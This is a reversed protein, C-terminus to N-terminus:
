FAEWCFIPKRVFFRELQGRNKHLTLDRRLLATDLSIYGLIIQTFVRVDATLDPQEDTRSVGEDTVLYRGSNEPLADDLVEVVVRLGEPKKALALAKEVHVVRAMLGNNRVTRVSAPNPVLAPLYADEPLCLAVSQYDASIRSLFGLLMRLGEAGDYAVDQVALMRDEAATYLLYAKAGEDDGLLYAFRHQNLAQEDSPKFRRRRLFPDDRTLCLNYRRAFRDTLRGVESLDPEDGMRLRRTWGTHRWGALERVPLTHSYCGDACEYGFKRYFEASFPHLISFVEGNERGSRLLHEMIARIGGRNRHEPLTTVSGIGGCPVAHGDFYVTFPNDMVYSLLTGDEDFAGWRGEVSDRGEAIERRRAEFDVSMKFCICRNYEAQIIEDMRLPRVILGVGGESRKQWYVLM